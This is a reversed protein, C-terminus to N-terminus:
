VVFTSFDYDQPRPNSDREHSSGQYNVDWGELWVLRSVPAAM